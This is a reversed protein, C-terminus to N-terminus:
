SENKVVQRLLGMSPVFASFCAGGWLCADFGGVLRLVNNAEGHTHVTLRHHRGHAIRADIWGDHQRNTAM